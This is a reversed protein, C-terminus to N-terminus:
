RFFLRQPLEDSPRRGGSVNGFREIFATLEFCLLHFHNDGQGCSKTRYLITIRSLAQTHEAVLMEELMVLGDSLKSGFTPCAPGRTINKAWLPPPM